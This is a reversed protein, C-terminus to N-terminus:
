INIGMQRKTYFKSSAAIDSWWALEDTARDLDSRTGAAVLAVLAVVRVAGWAVIVDDVDILLLETDIGHEVDFTDNNRVFRRSRSRSRSGSQGPM